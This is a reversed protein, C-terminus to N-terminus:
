LYPVQPPKPTPPQLSPALPERTNPTPLCFYFAPAHVAAGAGPQWTCFPCTGFAPLLALAICTRDQGQRPRPGCALWWEEGLDRRALRYVGGTIGFGHPSQEGPAQDRFFAFDLDPGNKQVQAILSTWTRDPKQVQAFLSTWTRDPKQVQTFLSTWTRDPKQVQPGLFGSKSDTRDQRLGRGRNAGSAGM